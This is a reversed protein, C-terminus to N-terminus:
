FLYKIILKYLIIFLNKSTKDNKNIGKVLWNICSEKSSSDFYKVVQPVAMIDVPAGGKSSEFLEIRWITWIDSDPSLRLNFNDVVNPLVSKTIFSIVIASEPDWPLPSTSTLVNTGNVKLPLAPTVIGDPKSIYESVTGYGKYDKDSIAIDIYKPSVWILKDPCEPEDVFEKLSSPFLTYM